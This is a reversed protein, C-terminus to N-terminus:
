AKRREVIKVLHKRGSALAASLVNAPCEPLRVIDAMMAGGVSQDPDTTALQFLAAALDPSLPRHAVLFDKFVGYRYHEPHDDDGKEWEDRCQALVSVNVVGVDFWKSTFGLAEAFERLDALFVETLLENDGLSAL